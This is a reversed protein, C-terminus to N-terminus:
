KANEKFLEWAKKLEEFTINFNPAYIGKWRGYLIDETMKPFCKFDTIIEQPINKFITKEKQERIEFENIKNRLVKMQEQIKKSELELNGLKNLLEEKKLTTSQHFYDRLLDNILKSSNKEKKLEEIIELDLSLIKQGKM